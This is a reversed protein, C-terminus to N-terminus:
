KKKSRDLWIYQYALGVTNFDQGIRTTAGTAASLKISHGRAIPFSATLGVRSNKQFDQKVNGGVTSQGGSYFTADAAVWLSPRITYSAHAQFTFLPDQTRTVGGYFDDNATFFWIGAYADLLWRGTPYSFALEPKFAWRNAGLNIMKDSYYEGTPVSVTISAGLIPEPKHKAFEAATMAPAGLFSVALKARADGIGTRTTSRREEFVNGEASLHAGPLGFQANAYKGFFSFTRAYGLTAIGLKASLDTIPLSPDLLVDGSQYTFASILLNGGTPVPFYARPELEQAAAGAAVLLFPLLFLPRFRERRIGTM